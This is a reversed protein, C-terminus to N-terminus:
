SLVALRQRIERLLEVSRRQEIELEGFRAAQYLETLREVPAALDTQPISAAFELPTIGDAKRYGRRALLRLMESYHQSARRPSLSGTASRRLSWMRSIRSRLLPGGFIFAFVILVAAIIFPTWRSKAAHIQWVRM